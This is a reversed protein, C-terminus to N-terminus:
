YFSQVTPATTPCSAAPYPTGPEIRASFLVKHSGCITTKPRPAM